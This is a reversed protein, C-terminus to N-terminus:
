ITKEWEQEIPLTARRRRTASRTTSNSNIALSFVVNRANRVSIEMERSFDFDSYLMTRQQQM